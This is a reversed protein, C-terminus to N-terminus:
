QNEPVGPRYESSFLTLVMGFLWFFHGERPYIRYYYFVVWCFPIMLLLIIRLIAVARQYRGPVMLALIILFLPNIWGSIVLAVYEFIMDHFLWRVSFPNEKLPLVFAFFAALYGRSPGCGPVRCAGWFLAFSVSYILLGIWFLTRKPSM